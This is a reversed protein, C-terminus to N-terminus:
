PPPVIFLVMKRDISASDNSEVIATASTGDDVWGSSVAASTQVSNDPFKFGGSTSHVTGAVELKSGPSTTGIGVDGQIIMGGEPAPTRSYGTSNSISVGGLGWIDMLNVASQDGRHIYDSAYLGGYVKADYSVLLDSMTARGVVQLPETPNDTGIGVSDGLGTLYVATGDDVWGSSVAASTQVSNDPFKFGGSTSHVVGVVELKSGPSTTGIGVDGQIIMGGEPAPTRSYGTSNSISVGGLGWIDMLNVASQDGRHIYDSAYLGGYVKADYSVLLDSMTARGVVQLPETPNDTGIGVSDGLGTLYVATGDDVWGGAGATMRAFDATDAQAARFAYGVCTIRQRPELPADGSVQVSLWCNSHQFVTDPISSVKGLLINFLGQQIDIGSQTETWLQSGGTSDDHISIILSLTTDLAAGYEDTLVGQYNIFGPVEAVAM